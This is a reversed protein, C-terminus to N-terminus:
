RDAEMRAIAAAVQSRAAELKRDAALVAVYAPDDLVAMDGAEVGLRQEVLQRMDDVWDGTMARRVPEWRDANVSAELEAAAEALKAEPSGPEPLVKVLAYGARYLNEIVAASIRNAQHGLQPDWEPFSKWESCGTSGALIPDACVLSGGPLHGVATADEVPIPDSIPM